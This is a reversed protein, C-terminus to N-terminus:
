TSKDFMETAISVTVTIDERPIDLTWDHTYLVEDAPNINRVTIHPKTDQARPRYSPYRVTFMFYGNFIKKVFEDATLPIKLQVAYWRDPGTPTLVEIPGHATEYHDAATEVRAVHDCGAWPCQFANRTCESRYHRHLEHVAYWRNATRGDDDADEANVTGCHKCKFKLASVTWDLLVQPGDAFEDGCSCRAMYKACPPCNVHAAECLQFPPLSQAGCTHCSILREIQPCIHEM